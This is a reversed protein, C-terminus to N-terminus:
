NPRSLAPFPYGGLCSFEPWSKPKSICLQQGCTLVKDDSLLGGQSGQWARIEPYGWAPVPCPKTLNCLLFPFLSWPQEPPFPVTFSRALASVLSSLPCKLFTEQYRGGVPLPGNVNPLPFQTTNSSAELVEPFCHCGPSSVAPRPLHGPAAEGGSLNMGAEGLATKGLAGPCGAM